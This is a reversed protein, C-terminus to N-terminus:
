RSAIYFIWGGLALVVALIAGYIRVTIKGIRGHAKDAKKKADNAARAVTKIQEAHTSCMTPMKDRIEKLDARVEDKFESLGDTLNEVTAVLKGFASPSYGNQEPM